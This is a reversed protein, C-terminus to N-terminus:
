IKHLQQLQKEYNGTPLNREYIVFMFFGHVEHKCGLSQVSRDSCVLFGVSIVTLTEVKKHM